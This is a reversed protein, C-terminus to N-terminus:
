HGNKLCRTIEEVCEPCAVLRGGREGNFAAHDIDQFFPRLEYSKGCWTTKGDTRIADIGVCHVWDPRDSM